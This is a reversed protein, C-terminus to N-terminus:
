TCGPVVLLPCRSERIMASLRSRLARDGLVSRHPAGLVILNANNERATSLVTAAVEGAQVEFKLTCGEAAESTVLQHLKAMAIREAHERSAATSTQSLAHVMTLKSDNDQAISCAYQAARLDNESLDSALVISKFPRLVKDCAPGAVLVPYPLSRSAWEAVSGLVLKAFGHRGHSGVVLLDIGNAEGVSQFARAPDGLFAIEKHKVMRLEPIHEVYAHLREQAGQLQMAALEPVPGGGEVGFLQPVLAHLVYLRAHVDQGLQAALRVAILSAPSCDTAVLIARFRLGAPGLRTSKRSSPSSSRSATSM